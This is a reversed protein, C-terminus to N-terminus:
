SGVVRFTVKVGAAPRSSPVDYVAVSLAVAALPPGNVLPVVQCNVM